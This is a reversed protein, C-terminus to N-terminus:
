FFLLRTVVLGLVRAEEDPRQVRLTGIGLQAAVRALSPKGTFDLVRMAFENADVLLPEALVQGSRRAESELFSWTLRADQAVIPRAALFRVLDAVITAFPQLDDLLATDLGLREAVYRPVRKGPQVTASFREITHGDQVHLATVHVLRGRQPRPGTALLALSTFALGVPDPAPKGVLGWRGDARRQIRPDGTLPAALHERLAPPPPGGYVHALLADETVTGSRALFAYARDQLALFRHQTM